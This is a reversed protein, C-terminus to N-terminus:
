SSSSSSSTSASFSSSSAPISYDLQFDSQDALTAALSLLEQDCFQRGTLQLGIPLGDADLGTPVSVAPLNGLSAPITLLDSQYMELPTKRGGFPFATFPSTPALLFDVEKFFQAYEQILLSRARQASKYYADYYGSSLVFTGLLIRRKVEPGFNENRTKIYLDDMNKADKTRNGYHVGDYRSLNSSAEAASLIYYIPIAYNHLKSQLEIIQVGASQLLKCTQQLASRISEECAVDEPLLLGVRLKKLAAPDLPLIESGVPLKDSYPASTTDRRDYGNIHALLFACDAASRGLPGIQDLSSAFAVLGYRSIRGYTPRLGVVGCFSAPQRVSGGTDSGLALPTISAAVSIAAGGSSGGPVRDKRWPNVARQFASNETSSGMAFEDMNTRGFLIAGAQRLKSIVTADYPSKFKELIRSACSVREGQQCINDKISVPIGDLSSLAEKRSRRRDSDKAQRRIFDEDLSLFAGLKRCSEAQQLCAEALELASYDKVSLASSHEQASRLLIQNFSTLKFSSM